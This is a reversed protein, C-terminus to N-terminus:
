KSILLSVTCNMTWLSEEARSHPHLHSLLLDPSKLLNPLLNLTWSYHVVHFEMFIIKKQANSVSNLSIGVVSLKGFEVSILTNM